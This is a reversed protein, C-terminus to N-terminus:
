FLILFLFCMHIFCVRAHMRLVLAADHLRTILNHVRKKPVQHVEAIVDDLNSILDKLASGLGFLESEDTVNTDDISDQNKNNNGANTFSPPLCM